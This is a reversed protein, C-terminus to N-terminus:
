AQRGALALLKDEDEGLAKAIARVKEERPPQLEDREVKSLYAPSMDVMEAFRRVGINQAERLRRVTDGFASRAARLRQREAYYDAADPSALYELTAKARRYDDSGEKIVGIAYYHRILGVQIERSATAFASWAAPSRKLDSREEPWWQSFIYVVEPDPSYLNGDLNRM